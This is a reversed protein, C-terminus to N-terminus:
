QKQTKPAVYGKRARPRAGPFRQKADATLNVKVQRVEGPKANPARYYISYRQRLRRISENFTEVPDAGKLVDGGTKEAVGTMGQSLIFRRHPAFRVYQRLAELYLTTLIVGTLVADAEWYKRLVRGERRSRHGLNDTIILVARQRNSTRPNRFHDVADDLAAMIMTPGEPNRLQEGVDGFVCDNIAREVADFDNTFDTVYQSKTSFAMVAVRDGPRLETLAHRATEAIKKLLQRMSSSVDFLLILDLPEETESFHVIEQRSGNDIIEFDRQTLGTLTRTGDTVETDVRVLSVDSQFLPTDQAATALVFQAAICAAASRRLIMEGHSALM